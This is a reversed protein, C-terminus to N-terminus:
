LVFTFYVLCEDVTHLKLVLPFLDITVYNWFNIKEEALLEDVKIQLIILVYISEKEFLM